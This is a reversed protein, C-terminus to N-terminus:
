EAKRRLSALAAFPSEKEAGDRPRPQECSEHRPAIPLSLLLEDEVLELADLGPTAEIADFADIDLEEDPIPAGVPVLQLLRGVEVPWDVRELCRQCQMGLVGKATLRLYPKGDAGQEGVIVYEFEGAHDLLADALRRFAEVKVVGGLRRAERAFRIPDSLVGLRSM